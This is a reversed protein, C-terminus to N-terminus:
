MEEDEVGDMEEMYAKMKDSAHEELYDTFPKGDDVATWEDALRELEETFEKPHDARRFMKNIPLVKQIEEIKLEETYTDGDKDIDALFFKDKEFIEVISARTGDKLLVRDYQKIKM